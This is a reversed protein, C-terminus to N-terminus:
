LFGDLDIGDLLQNLLEQQIEPDLNEFVDLFNNIADAIESEDITGGNLLDVLQTVETGIHENTKLDNLNNELKDVVDNVQGDTKITISFFKNVINIDEITVDPFSLQDKFDKIVLGGSAFMENDNFMTIILNIQDENLSVEGLAIKTFKLVLDSGQFFPDANILIRTKFNLATNNKDHLELALEVM